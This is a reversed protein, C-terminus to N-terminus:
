VIAHASDDNTAMVFPQLLQMAFKATNEDGDLLRIEEESDRMTALITCNDFKDQNDCELRLANLRSLEVRQHTGSWITRFLGANRNDKYVIVNNNNNNKIIVQLLRPHFRNVLIRVLCVGVALVFLGLFLLLAIGSIGRRYLLYVKLVALGIQLGMIGALMYQARRLRTDHLVFGGNSLHQLHLHEELEDNEDDEMRKYEDDDDNIKNIGDRSAVPVVSAASPAVADSGM